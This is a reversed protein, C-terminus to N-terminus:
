ASREKDNKVLIILYRIITKQKEVFADSVFGHPLSADCAELWNLAMLELPLDPSQPKM